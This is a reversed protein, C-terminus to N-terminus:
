AFIGLWFNSNKNESPLSNASLATVPACRAFLFFIRMEVIPQPDASPLVVAM